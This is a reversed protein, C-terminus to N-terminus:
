AQQKLQPKEYMNQSHNKIIEISIAFWECKTEEEYQNEIVFRYDELRKAQLSESELNLQSLQFVTRQGHHDGERRMTFYYVSDDQKVVELVKDVHEQNMQLVQKDM